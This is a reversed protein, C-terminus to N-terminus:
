KGGFRDRCVKLIKDLCDPCFHYHEETITKAAQNKDKGFPIMLQNVKIVKLDSFNENIQLEKGCCDCTYTIM